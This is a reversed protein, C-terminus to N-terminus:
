GGTFSMHRQVAVNPTNPSIAFDHGWPKKAVARHLGARIYAARADGADVGADIPPASRLVARLDANDDQGLCLFLQGTCTLRVRNCSACFNHSLPTIFGVRSSTDSGPPTCHYTRAPGATPGTGHDTAQLAYGDERLQATLDAISWHQDVRATTTNGIDGLPMVEIFALDLNEQACWAILRKPESVGKVLVSNIRVRLGAQQAARIGELVRELKGWRTITQFTAADLSDLSVNVRRIGCAVLKEADRVLSNGNTTLTLEDLGGSDIYQGLQELLTFIGRRVLPEGGTLRLKRVGLGIFHQCLEHLEELTLLEARPVFSMHEAMCYTCRMDCRDTVSVRLYTIARGFPDILQSDM